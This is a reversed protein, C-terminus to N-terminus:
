LAVFTAMFAALGFAAGPVGIVGAGNGDTAEGDGDESGAGSGNSDDGNSGNASDSDSDGTTEADDTSDTATAGAPVGTGAFFYSAICAAECNRYAEIEAETGNGQPCNGVCENNMSVMEESPNPVPVCAAECTVDGAACNELCALISAQVPDVSATTDPAQNDAPTTTDQAYVVAFLGAVITSTFRM